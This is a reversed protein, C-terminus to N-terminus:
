SDRLAERDFIYDSLDWEDVIWDFAERWRAEGYTQRFSEKLGYFSKHTEERDVKFRAMIYDRMAEGVMKAALDMPLPAHWSPEIPPEPVPEPGFPGKKKRPPPTTRRIVPRKKKKKRRVLKKGGRKKGVASPRKKKGLAPSPSPVRKKKAPASPARKSPRKKSLLKKKRPPAETAPRKTARPPAVAAARKKRARASAASVPTKKPVKKSRARKKGHLPAGALVGPFHYNGRADIVARITGQQARRRLTSASIGLRRAAEASSASTSTRVTRVSASTPRRPSVTQRTATSGSRPRKKKARTPPRKAVAM